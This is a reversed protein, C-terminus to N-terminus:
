SLQVKGIFVAYFDSHIKYTGQVTQDGIVTQLHTQKIIEFLEGIM